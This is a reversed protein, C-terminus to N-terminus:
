LSKNEVILKSRNQLIEIYNDILITVNIEDSKHKFISGSGCLEKINEKVLNKEDVFFMCLKQEKIWEQVAGLFRENDTNLLDYLFHPMYEWYPRTGRITNWRRYPLIIVNARTRGLTFLEEIKRQMSETPVYESFNDKLDSLFNVDSKLNRNKRRLEEKEYQLSERWKQTNEKDLVYRMPLWLSILTDAYLNGDALICDLDNNRRYDDGSGKYNIWYQIHEKIKEM